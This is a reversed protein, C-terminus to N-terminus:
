CCQMLQQLVQFSKLTRRLRQLFACAETPLQDIYIRIFLVKLTVILTLLVFSENSSVLWHNMQSAGNLYSDKQSTAVLIQYDYM